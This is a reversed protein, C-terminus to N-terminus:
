RIMSPILCDLSWSVFWLGYLCKSWTGNRSVIRSRWMLYVPWHIHRVVFGGVLKENISWPNFSRKSWSCWSFCIEILNRRENKFRALFREFSSLNSLHRHVFRLPALKYDQRLLFLIWVSKRLENNSSSSSNIKKRKQANEIM